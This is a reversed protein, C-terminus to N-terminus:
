LIRACEVSRCLKNVVGMYELIDQDRRRTVNLCRLRANFISMNDEFAKTMMEINDLFSLDPPIQPLLYDLYRNHDVSSLQMLLSVKEAEALNSMKCEFIELYREYCQAVIEGSSPDHRFKVFNKTYEGPVIDLNTNGLQRILSKVLTTFDEEM